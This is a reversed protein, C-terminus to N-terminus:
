PRDRQQRRDRHQSDADRCLGRQLRLQLKRRRCADDPDHLRKTLLEVADIEVVQVRAQALVAHLLLQRVQPELMQEILSFGLENM